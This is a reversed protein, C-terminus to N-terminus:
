EPFEMYHRGNLMPLSIKKGNEVNQKYFVPVHAGKCQRVIEEVWDEDMPRAYRGSEAGIIVWNIPRCTQFWESPSSQEPCGHLAFQADIPGLLPEFSVFLVPAPVELLDDIRENYRKQNEASIGVWVNKPWSEHWRDPTMKWINQPRKTLLQWDLLPTSDMVEWLDDRWEQPVEDDFADMLSGCFVKYRTKHMKANRNWTYPKDLYKSSTQKRPKGAGWGEETWKYRGDLEEAYCHECGESVHTCGVWANFSYDSWEIKTKGM